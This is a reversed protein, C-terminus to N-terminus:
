SNASPRQFPKNPPAGAPKGVSPSKPGPVWVRLVYVGGKRQFVIIKGTVSNIIKGGTKSFTVDNGASSLHSVAILPREVNAIQWKLGCKHGEDSVFHVALEGENPINTGDPGRYKKGARSMPSPMVKGSFTGAKAVSDAAGSDVVAEILIAGPTQVGLANLGVDDKSSMDCGNTLLNVSDQFRVYKRKHRRKVMSFPRSEEERRTEGCKPLPTHTNNHPLEEERRTEGCKPPPTHM